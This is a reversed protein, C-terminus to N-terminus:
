KRGRDPRNARAIPTQTDASGISTSTYFRLASCVMVSAVSFPPFPIAERLPRRMPPKRTLPPQREINERYPAASWPYDYRRRCFALSRGPGSSVERTPRLRACLSAGSSSRRTGVLRNVLSTGANTSRPLIYIGSGTSLAGDGGGYDCTMSLCPSGTMDLTM